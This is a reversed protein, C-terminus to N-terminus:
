APQKMQRMLDAVFREQIEQMYATFRPYTMQLYGVVADFSENAELAHNLAHIQEDNLTELLKVVASDFVTKGIRALLDERAPRTMTDMGLTQLQQSTFQTSM